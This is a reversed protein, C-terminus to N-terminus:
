NSKVNRGQRIMRKKECKIDLRGAFETSALM